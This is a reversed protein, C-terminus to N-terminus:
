IPRPEGARLVPKTASLLTVPMATRWGDFRGLAGAHAVSLRTLEGGTRQRWETLIAESQLTVANAVLRGGPRLAEWCREIVHPESLGGGIFVADPTALGSLLEPARGHLIRLDPVGLRCRNQDIFECRAADAEIAFTRCTPHARMWEIGISGCGAGVDWLLEGPSPALHALTTARIDRKTIQGDHVYATDPLGALTSLRSVEADARCEVAIINLDAGVAEKWDRATQDVRREKPGGLHELVTLRSDGFGRERLLRAVEGPTRCSDSLILLRASPHIHPHLAEIPRGHVTLTAVDQLPWGLRAAALAFSSPAPYVAIEEAAIKRSLTAGIGFWMPDGSALVCVPTGRRALLMDYAGDFPTPWAIREEGRDPVLALHRKGGVLTRAQLVAARAKKGLGPLGDEGIGVITLWAPM